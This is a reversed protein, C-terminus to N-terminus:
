DDIAKNKLNILRLTKDSHEQLKDVGKGMCNQKLCAQPIEVNLKVHIENKKFYISIQVYM